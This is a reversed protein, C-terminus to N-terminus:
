SDFYSGRMVAGIMSSGAPPATISILEMLNTGNLKDNRLDASDFNSGNLTAVRRDDNVRALTVNVILVPM